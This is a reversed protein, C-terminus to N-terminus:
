AGLRARLESDKERPPEAAFFLKFSDAAQEVLMDIGCITTMGREQARRILETPYPTTVFDFLWGDSPMATLDLGLAPQGNMGLPTANILGDSAIPLDFPVPAESLGYQVALKTAEGLDRSQIRIATLGLLHLGMLAARAAGGTGLLTVIGVPAGAQGLRGILTAVAAVDTNGAAVHGDRPVLINAAGTGTALDSAGDALRLADLKLPMTVNSGRWVPDRRRDELYGPFDARGVKVRKYDAAIGLTELWFGHIIPSLSHSIPDGIVDAYPRPSTM